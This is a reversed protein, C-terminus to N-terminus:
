VLLLIFSPLLLLLVLVLQFTCLLEQAIRDQMCPLSSCFELYLETRSPGSLSDLVYAQSVRRAEESCHQAALYLWGGAVVCLAGPISLYNNLEERFSAMTLPNAQSLTSVLKSSEQWCPLEHVANLGTEGL